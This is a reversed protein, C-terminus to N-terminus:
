TEILTSQDKSQDYVDKPYFGLTIHFDRSELNLDKRLNSAAICSVVIYFAENKGNKACGLGLLNLEVNLGIYHDIVNQDVLRYEQPTLITLHYKDGDRSKQANSFMNFAEEGLQERLTYLYPQVDELRVNLGIYRDEFRSYLYEIKYKSTM